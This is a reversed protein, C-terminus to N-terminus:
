PQAIKEQWIKSFTLFFSRLADRRSKDRLRIAAASETALSESRGNLQKLSVPQKAIVRKGIARFKNILAGKINFSSKV